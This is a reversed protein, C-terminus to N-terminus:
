SSRPRVIRWRVKNYLGSGQPDALVIRIPENSSHDTLASKEIPVQGSLRGWLTQLPSSKQFHASDKQKQEAHRHEQDRFYAAVGSLTGGTGAGAVFADLRPPQVRGTEETEGEDEAEEELGLHTGGCQAWDM